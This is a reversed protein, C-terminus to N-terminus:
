IVVVRDRGSAWVACDYGLLVGISHVRDRVKPMEICVGDDSCDVFADQRGVDHGCLLNVVPGFTVVEGFCDDDDLDSVEDHTDEHSGSFVDGDCLKFEADYTEDCAEENGVALGLLTQM